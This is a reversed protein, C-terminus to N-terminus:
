SWRANKQDGISGYVSHFNNDRDRETESTEYRVVHSESEIDKGGTFKLIQGNM